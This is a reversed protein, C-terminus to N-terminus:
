APGLAIWDFIMSRDGDHSPQAEAPRAAGLAAAEAVQLPASDIILLTTAEVSRMGLTLVLGDCTEGVCHFAEHGREATFDEITQDVGEVVIHQLNAREPVHLSIRQSGRPTQLRVRVTRVGADVDDDLVHLSPSPSNSARAPAVLVRADSWPLFSTLEDDFRGASLLSEPVDLAGNFGQVAGELVWYAEDAERDELHVINLRQPSSSSYAPQVAALGAMLPIAVAAGALSGRAFLRQMRTEALIPIFGSAALAAAFGVIAGMEPGPAFSEATVAFPLWFWTAVFLGTLAALTMGSWTRRWPMWAILAIALLAPVTPVLFVVSAGPMQWAALFSLLAWWLWVGLATGWYGARRGIVLSVLVLALFAASWIATRTPLPNSYWPALSGTMRSLGFTVAYGFITALLLAVPLASCGLALTRWGVAGMRMTRYAIAVWVLLAALGIGITWPEPWRLVVGPPLDLFVSNGPPPARLDRSAFVRIAALANDGHHQVSGPELNAVNDLPTHYLAGGETIAFNLGPLGAARYISLDTNNPLLKYIEYYLSSAVPRPASAAFADILWANNDSTEFLISQGRTGNAELNVVVGIDAAWPHEAVFAEAGLLGPEEADSFLLIVPNPLPPEAKLIRAIEIMAAVGAIDDAAGPGAPVSDYHATLLVAPSDAQGPLRVLLNEVDGCQAWISSCAFTRQTEVQYGLNSMEERIREAVRHNAESGAPHAAGDALLRAVLDMARAGSFQNEPADVPLAVPPRAGLLGIALALAMVAIAATAAWPGISGAKDPRSTQQEIM